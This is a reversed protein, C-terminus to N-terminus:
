SRRWQFRISRPPSSFMVILWLQWHWCAALPLLAVPPVVVAIPPVVIALPPVAVALNTIGIKLFKNKPGLFANRVPNRLIKKKRHKRSSNKAPVHNQLPDCSNRSKKM